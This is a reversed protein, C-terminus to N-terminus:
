VTGMKNTLLTVALFPEVLHSGKLCYLIKHRFEDSKNLKGLKPM